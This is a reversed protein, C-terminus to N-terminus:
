TSVFGIFEQADNFWIERITFDPKAALHWTSATRCLTLVAANTAMVCGRGLLITAFTLIGKM